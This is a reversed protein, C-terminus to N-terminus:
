NMSSTFRNPETRALRVLIDVNRDYSADYGVVANRLKDRSLV